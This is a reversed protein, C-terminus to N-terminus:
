DLVGEVCWTERLRDLVLRYVAGDDLAVDWEERSWAVDWWDGSARWPGARDRVAGRVGSATVHVPAGAELRVHATRTPRFLRLAVRPWLPARVRAGRFPPPSFTQLVFAGPRHTDLLAPAGARGSETWARLRGLTEALREPSPQAPDLLSFQVVRAATPEARVTLSQVAEGPPHAELELRVLTRWTRPDASPAAARLTRVHRTGDVLGLAVTLAMAERGRQRLGQCLPDLVRTLLFTLPEMGDVPWDTELTSEFLEGAPTPVLPTDDEGRALRRLLPGNRGLRESLGVPPLRALDGLTRLGWLHFLRRHGEPLPLLDLSLPALTAAESGPPVVTLGERSRAVLSAATRTWAV